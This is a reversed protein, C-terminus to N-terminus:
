SESHSQSVWLILLPTLQFFITALFFQLWRLDKVELTFSRLHSENLKQRPRSIRYLESLSQPSALVRVPESLNLTKLISNISFCNTRFLPLWRLDKIDLTFSTLYSGNIKQRPGSIRYLESPSQSSALVGLPESLSLRLFLDISFFNPRFFHSDSFTM